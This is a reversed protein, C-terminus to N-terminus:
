DNNVPKTSIWSGRNGWSGMKPPVAAGKELTVYKACSRKGRSNAIWDGKTLQVSKVQDRKSKGPIANPDKSAKPLKINNSSPLGPGAPGRQAMAVRDEDATAVTDSTEGSDKPTNMSLPNNQERIGAEFDTVKILEKSGMKAEAATADGEADVEDDDDVNNDSEEEESNSPTPVDQIVIEERVVSVPISLPPRSTSESVELPVGAEVPLAAKDPSHQTKTNPSTAASTTTSSPPESSGRASSAMLRRFSVAKHMVRLKNTDNDVSWKLLDQLKKEDMICYVKRSGNTYTSTRVAEITTKIRTRFYVM